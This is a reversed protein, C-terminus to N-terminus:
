GFRFVPIQVDMQLFRELDGPRENSRGFRLLYNSESSKLPKRKMYQEPVPVFASFEPDSYFANVYNEKDAKNISNGKVDTFLLIILSAIFVLLGKSHSMM